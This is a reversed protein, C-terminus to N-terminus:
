LGSKDKLYIHDGSVVKLELDYHTEDLVKTAFNKKMKDYFYNPNRLIEDLNAYNDLGFEKLFTKPM